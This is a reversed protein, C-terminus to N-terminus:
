QFCGKEVWQELVALADLDHFGGGGNCPQMGPVMFFRLFRDVRRRNVLTTSVVDEYCIISNRPAINQDDWGHWLIM